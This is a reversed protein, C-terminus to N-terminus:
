LGKATLYEFSSRICDFPDRRCTDQEVAYWDVGAKECAAIIPDWPLNGEGIAAIVPGDKPVVEKDKLHIFPVRGACREMLLVPDVGAHWVWYIDVELLYDPGGEEILIDYLTTPDGPQVRIFEHSHNHHGFGIGAAKLKAVVPAADAVFKRYGDAGQEGYEKPIGGIATYTAGLTRHFEIEDDTRNALADWSRHTAVCKLGTDDLMKRATKADVAPSEGEIARVASMQVAPYGIRAVKQLTDALEAETATFDRLTYMQLAVKSAM